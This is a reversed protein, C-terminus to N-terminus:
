SARTSSTAGCRRLTPIVVALLQNVEKEPYSKKKSSAKPWTACCGLRKSHQAPISTLREGEFFARFVKADDPTAWEPAGTARGAGTQERALWATPALEGLRGIRLSYDM